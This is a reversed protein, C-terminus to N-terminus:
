RYGGNAECKVDPFHTKFESHFGGEDPDPTPFPLRLVGNGCGSGRASATPRYLGSKMMKFVPSKGTKTVATFLPIESPKGQMM